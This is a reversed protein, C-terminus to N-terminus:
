KLVVALTDCLRHIDELSHVETFSYLASQGLGPFDKSLDQGGCIGRELLAENIHKVTKGTGDFGVVVDCFSVGGFVPAKVGKIEALKRTAYRSRQMIGHGIEQMGKPGMLAMYVGATIGWLAAATGVFEKANDRDFFSTREWAVDGFGWEGRITPAIGFLRSPYERVFEPRDMCAMFGARAGGYFMHLGLPQVEGCVIDAGYSVPPALVGLSIPNVGVVTLAGHKKALETIKDGQTEIFGFFVPNEFYVAAVDAGLKKSLDEMDIQGSNPNHTFLEVKMDPHLYTKVIKLRDPNATDAVLVRPRNTIRGAMRLSTAAAQSGDYTPVNVVEMDLLEAMMSVYEFLVQFRGHDEYPEGAYATLFESRGNIEDCIAPVYHQWCGGGLFSLLDNRNKALIGDIHRKLEYESLLPKPLNLEGKMRLAKPIVDFFDDINSVGIEKLMQQQVSPVSNPIYPHTFAESM